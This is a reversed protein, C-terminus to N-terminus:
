NPRSNVGVYVQPAQPKYEDVYLEKENVLNGNAWTQLYTRVKYGKAGKSVQEEQDTYTVYTGEKDPIRTPEPIPIEEITEHRLKYSYGNPDPRGYIQFVCTKGKSSSEVRAVLYIPQDTDNEFVFDIRGDSVTADAGMEMYNVPIGHNTRDRVRLGADIVANYLTSSVQCIGGGIGEKYAGSVIEQASYFGNKVTREGVWRNFSVKEGPQVTKGNFAQCGREVNKTRDDTSYKSIQSEFSGILVLDGALMESTVAAKVPEPEVQISGPQMNTIMSIIQEKLGQANLQQGDVDATIVMANGQRNPDFARSADTPAVYVATAIESIIADIGSMNKDIAATYGQYPETKLAVIEMYRELINSTGRGVYFAKNVADKVASDIADHMGLMASDITWSQGGYHIQMSWNSFDRSARELLVEYAQQPTAGYLEIGDVYVGPYFTNAQEVSGVEDYVMYGMVGLTAAAALFALLFFVRIPRGRRRKKPKSRRVAQQKRQGTQQRYQQTQGSASPRYGQRYAM